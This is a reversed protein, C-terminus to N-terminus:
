LINKITSKISSMMAKIIENGEIHHTQEQNGGSIQLMRTRAIDKTREQPM